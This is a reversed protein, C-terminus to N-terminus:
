KEPLSKAILDLFQEPSYDDSRAIPGPVKTDALQNYKEIRWSLLKPYCKKVAEMEEEGPYQRFFDGWAIPKPYKAFRDVLREIREASAEFHVILFDKQLREFVEDSLHAVSGTTDLIFNKQGSSDAALTHKEELSLYEAEAARYKEEFPYGMWRFLAATSEEGPHRDLLNKLDESIKDDISVREFDLQSEFQGARFTKGISSMGVFALRLTGAKQREEFESRTILM